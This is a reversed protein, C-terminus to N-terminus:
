NVGSISKVRFKVGTKERALTKKNFTFTLLTLNTLFFSLLPKPEDNM